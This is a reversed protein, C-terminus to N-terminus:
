SRPPDQPSIDADLAEKLRKRYNRLGYLRASFAHTITLLDQVLEQEPSLHEQNLVLIECGHQQCFREFWEYGFRTLRDKHAVILTSIEGADVADMLALFKKRRFNMGGGVEEIFEVPALGRVTCFQELALRQNKLDPRQSPSSVRCYAVIKRPGTPAPREHRFALIQDETYYRRGTATRGAPKLRGERDWRQVTKINVGLLHAVEHSTFTREM